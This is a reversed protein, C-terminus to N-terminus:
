KLEIVLSEWPKLSFSKLEVPTDQTMANRGQTFGKLM